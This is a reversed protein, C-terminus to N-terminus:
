FYSNFYRFCIPCNHPYKLIQPTEPKEAVFSLEEGIPKHDLRLKKSKSISITNTQSEDERSLCCLWSMITKKNEM